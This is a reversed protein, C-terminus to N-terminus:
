FKYVFLVHDATEDYLSSASTRLHGTILGVVRGYYHTDLVLCKLLLLIVNHLSSFCFSLKILVCTNYTSVISFFFGIVFKFTKLLQRTTSNTQGRSAPGAVNQTSHLPHYFQQGCVVLCSNRHLHSDGAVYRGPGAEGAGASQNASSDQSRSKSVLNPNSREVRRSCKVQRNTQQVSIPILSPIYSQCQAKFNDPM